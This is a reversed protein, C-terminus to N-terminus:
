TSGSSSVSTSSSKGSDLHRMTEAALPLVDILGKMKANVIEWEEPLCKLILKSETSAFHSEGLQATTGDDTSTFSPGIHLTITSAARDDDINKRAM